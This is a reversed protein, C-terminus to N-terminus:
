SKDVLMQLLLASLYFPPFPSSSPFSLYIQSVIPPQFMEAAILSVRPTGTRSIRRGEFTREKGADIGHTCNYRVDKSMIDISFILLFSTFCIFIFYIFCFIFLLYIFISVCHGLSWTFSKTNEQM